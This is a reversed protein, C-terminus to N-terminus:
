KRALIKCTRYCEQWSTWHDEMEKGLDKLIKVPFHSIKALFHFIGSSRPLFIFSGQFDQCSFSLDELIKALFHFIGSSRLFFKSSKWLNGLPWWSSEWSSWWLDEHLHQRWTVLQKTNNQTVSFNMKGHQFLETLLLNVAYKTLCNVLYPLNDFM